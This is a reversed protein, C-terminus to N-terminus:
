SYSSFWIGSIFVSPFSQSADVGYGAYLSDGFALVVREEGPAGLNAVHHSEVYLLKGSEIDRAYGTFRLDGTTAAAPAWTSM